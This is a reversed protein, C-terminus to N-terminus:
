ILILFLHEHFNCSVVFLRKVWQPRAVCIYTPLSVTIPESLPKDGPRRWVMIQVLGPINNIPGKPVFKLSIKIMIWVNENLLICNFIDDAFHRGSQRPRLTNVTEREEFFAHCLYAPKKYHKKDNSQDFAIEHFLLMSNEYMICNSSWCINGLIRISKENVYIM